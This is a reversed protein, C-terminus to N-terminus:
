ECLLHGNKLIAGFEDSDNLKGDKLEIDKGSLQGVWDLATQAREVDFKAQAQLLLVKSYIPVRRHIGRSLSLNPWFHM